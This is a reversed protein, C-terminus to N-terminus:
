PSSRLEADCAAVGGFCVLMPKLLAYYNGFKWAHLLRRGGIVTSNVSFCQSGEAIARHAVNPDNFSQLLLAGRQRHIRAPCARAGRTRRGRRSFPTPGSGKLQIDRRVGDRDIVEGLLIARGDGLQPVFTGFQHGKLCYLRIRNIVQHRPSAAETRASSGIWRWALSALDAAVLQRTAAAQTTAQRPIPPNRGQRDRRGLERSQRDASSCSRAPLDPNLSRRTRARRRPSHCNRALLPVCLAM